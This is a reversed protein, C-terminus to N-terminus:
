APRTRSAISVSARNPGDPRACGSRSTKPATASASTTSSRARRRRRADQAVRRCSDAGDDPVTISIVIPRVRPKRRPEPEGGKRIDHRFDFRYSNDSERVARTQFRKTVDYTALWIQDDSDTLNVSYTLTLDDTLDQGLTLRAGPDAENAILQPEIRVVDLGTARQLSRGLTSGVRGTLYSLVQERAVDYEEGRMEELTRGTVIMAMIDPEPLPPSSTLTTETNGPEGSVTM